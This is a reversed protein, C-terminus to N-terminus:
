SIYSIPSEGFFVEGSSVLFTQGNNVELVLNGDKDLDRFYGSLKKNPLNVLVEQNLKYARELWMNRVPGFGFSLWKQYIVSFQDLFLNLLDRPTLLDFGEKALSSSLYITNKPNSIINVGIGVVIFNPLNNEMQSELLLGSVKKGNIIIDNPWKYFIDARHANLKAIALGMAVSAVFSIQSSELVPKQTKLLLSFYLNGSPSDWVRGYRGRGSVQSDSLIVQQHNIINAKALEIALSNTSEVSSYHRILYDRYFYERYDNKM